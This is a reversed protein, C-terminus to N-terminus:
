VPNIIADQAAIQAALFTEIETVSLLQAARETYAAQLDTRPSNQWSAIAAVDATLKTKTAIVATRQFALRTKEVTAAAIPDTPIKPLRVGATDVVCNVSTVSPNAKLVGNVFTDVDRFKKQKGTYDAVDDVGIKATFTLKKKDVVELEANVTAGLTMQELVKRAM